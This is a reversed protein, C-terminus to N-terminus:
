VALRWEVEQQASVTAPLREEALEKVKELAKPFKEAFRGADAKEVELEVWLSTIGKKENLYYNEMAGSWLSASTREDVVQERGEFLEGLNIVSLHQNPIHKHIISYVGNGDNDLFRIRSGETWDTEIRSGPAFVSSWQGYTTHSWLTNWVKQAPAQIHINFHLTKM